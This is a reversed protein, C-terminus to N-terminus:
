TAGGDGFRRKWHGDQSANGSQDTKKRNQGGKQGTDNGGKKKEVFDPGKM